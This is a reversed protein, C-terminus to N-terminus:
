FGGFGFPVIQFGQMENDKQTQRELEQRYMARYAAAMELQQFAPAIEATLGYVLAQVFNTPFDPTLAGTELDKARVHGLYEITDGTTDPVPLLRVTLQIRGNGTLTKEVVYERPLGESTRDSRSRYDELSIPLILTRSSDSAKLYSMPEEIAFVTASLDYNATGDTTTFTLRSSRWLFRGEADIAKVLRNLARSAFDRVKGFQPQSLSQGPGLAGVNTLADAIIEDRSASWTDTSSTAM